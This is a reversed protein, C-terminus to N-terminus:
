KAEICYLNQRGRLFLQKGAIAPSADFGDELVNTALIEFEPGKKAVVCGGDRGAFYVRDAAGVPSAYLGRVGELRSREFVAEGSDANVCSVIAENSQTYYLLDDYLLLSPVYPTNRDLSWLVKDTGTVDGTSDLSIAQLASGRYGSACYVVGDKTVPSPTVNEVQGGCEWILSGDALDYSRVRNKGNTVVQTRGAHEVILPTSWTTPEDRDTRWLTEGTNADIAEITDAGEHDRILVLRDGHLAPSAGEGFSLRTEVEPFEREWLLQGDLSYCYFGVSAFWVYLREGDTVPSASAYTNDNHSGSHPVKEAAVKRWIEKGTARDLCITVYQHFNNPFKIGFPREPQTAPDAKAPDVKETPVVTVVYVRDEWVIPTANGRGPIAIKWAVNKTESWEVPPDGQPAVGAALPGRWQHWNALVAAGPEAGRSEAGSFSVALSVTSLLVCRVLSKM